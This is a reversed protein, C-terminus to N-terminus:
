TVLFLAVVTSQESSSFVELRYMVNAIGRLKKPADTFHCWDHTQTVAVCCGLTHGPCFHAGSVGRNSVEFCFCFGCGFPLCFVSLDGM